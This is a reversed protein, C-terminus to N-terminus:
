QEAWWEFFEDFDILGDGDSDVEKFGIRMEESPMEGDLAEILRAFEAYDILGNNDLDFHDFNEKIEDLEEDTYRTM